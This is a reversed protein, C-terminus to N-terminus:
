SVEEPAPLKKGKMAFYGIIVGAAVLLSVGLVPRYFIWAIGIVVISWVAGVIWCVAGVGFNVISAM